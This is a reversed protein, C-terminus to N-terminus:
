RQEGERRKRRSVFFARALIVLCIGILLGQCIVNERDGLCYYHYMQFACLFVLIVCILIGLIWRRKEM